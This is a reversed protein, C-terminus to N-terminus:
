CFPSTAKELDSGPRLTRCFQEYLHHGAKAWTFERSRKTAANGMSRRLEHDDALKSLADALEDVQLPNVLLCEIGERVIRGTGMPSVISPLGCGAAEYIVQPGGEEHTPFVFVDAAAYVAGVDRVYGLVKVDPRALTGAYDALLQEDIPGALLLMGNPSAREWAELLVDLGKRIIGHGVFAFVAPRDLRKIDIASALREPSFGYFTDLIRDQALGAELLSKAVLANPATVFDCQLMHEREEEIRSAPYWDKPIELGRRGYALSLANLCTQAMCNTREAIVIAGMDQARKILNMDYPPWMYVLDGEGISRSMARGAIRGQVSASIRAKCLAAYALRPLAPIVYPRDKLPDRGLSWLRRDVAGPLNELLETLAHAVSGHGLSNWFVAQVRLRGLSPVSGNDM